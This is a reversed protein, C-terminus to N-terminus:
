KEMEAIRKKLDPHLGREIVARLERFFAKRLENEDDVKGEEIPHRACVPSHCYSCSLSTQKGCLSCPRYFEKLSM